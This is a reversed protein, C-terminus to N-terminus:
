TYGRKVIASPLSQDQLDVINVGGIVKHRVVCLTHSAFNMRATWTSQRCYTWLHLLKGGRDVLPTDLEGVPHRSSLGSTKKRGELILGRSGLGDRHVSERTRDPECLTRGCMSRLLAECHSLVVCLVRMVMILIFSWPRSGFSMKFISWVGM